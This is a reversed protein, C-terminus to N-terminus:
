QVVEAALESGIANEISTLTEFQAAGTQVAGAALDIAVGEDGIVTNLHRQQYSVTDIGDGGNINNQWGDSFFTDLGSGGHYASKLTQIVFQDNGAGGILRDNGGGGSLNDDGDMGSLRNAAANGRLLNALENGTGSIAASGTLVLNEVNSRLTHSVSSRVTDTGDNASESVVDGGADVVYTDNGGRGFMRDAGARGNLRNAADNGTLRNPLSNGSGNIAAAGTLTLNEVHIPLTYSVSARITDVGDGAAELVEDGAESVIFADNGFLGMMTDNGGLGNIRDDEPTGELVDPGPTGNIAAALAITPIVSLAICLRLPRQRTM